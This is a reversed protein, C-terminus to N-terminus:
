IGLDDKGMLSRAFSARGLHGNGHAILVQLVHAAKTREGYPNLVTVEALEEATMARLKASAEDRVADIYACFADPEPFRLARAEEDSMGTGQSVRPLGFREDWGDRLWVPRERDFVFFIVNDVTRVAHWIDWGISHVRDSPQRNLEELTLDEVSRRCGALLRAVQWALTEGLANAVLADAPADDPM